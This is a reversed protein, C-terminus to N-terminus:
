SFINYNLAPETVQIEYNLNDLIFFCVPSISNGCSDIDVVYLSLSIYNYRDVQVSSIIKLQHKDDSNVSKFDIILEGKVLSLSSIEKKLKYKGNFDRKYKDDIIFEPVDKSFSIFYQYPTMGWSLIMLGEQFLNNALETTTFAEMLNSHEYINKKILSIDGLIFGKESLATYIANKNFTIIKTEKQVLFNSNEEICIIYSFVRAYNNKILHLKEESLGKIQQSEFDPSMEKLFISYNSSLDIKKIIKNNLTINLQSSFGCDFEEYDSQKLRDIENNQFSEITTFDIFLVAQKNKEVLLKESVVGDTINIMKVCKSTDAELIITDYM